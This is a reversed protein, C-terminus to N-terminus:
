AAMASGADGVMQVKDATVWVPVALASPVMQKTQTDEVEGTALASAAADDGNILAIALDSATKAELDTNKYVTGCQYGALM